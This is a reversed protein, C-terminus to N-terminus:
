PVFVLKVAPEVMAEVAEDFTATRAILAGVDLLGAQVLDLVEPATSRAHVRGIEYRVGKLYM